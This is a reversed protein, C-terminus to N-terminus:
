RLIPPPPTPPPPPPPPPTPAPPPEDSVIRQTWQAMHNSTKLDQFPLFFGPRSGDEGNLVRGPAVAFMWLLAQTDPDGVVSDNPFFKRLGARRQSSVTFWGLAKGGHQTVFPTPKPFTDMLGHAGDGDGLDDQPTPYLDDAVGPRAARALLVPIAGAEPAVAWTKAGPDSYGNCFRNGGGEECADVHDGSYDAQDVESYLLLSGDALFTPNFRNKGAEAAVVTVPEDGLWADGDRQILSIGGGIFSITQDNTGGIATVAISDGRPSWDPHSPVFPLEVQDIREGTNGDHFFLLQDSLPDNKPAVAVLQEGLPDFSGTLVRNQADDVSLERDLEFGNYTFFDADDAARALDNVYMLWGDQSNGLSFFMKDGQRSLAHCGVCEQPGDEGAIDAPAVFTEPTADAAGFDFRVISEPQTASWYYVGGDIRESAFELNFTASQGLGGNEDSGLVTLAVLGQGRNSAAIGELLDGDLAVMCAGEVFEEPDSYCRTTYRLDMSNSAFRLQFLENEPAGRQFHVELRGLNPPLLVGDNPYVLVPAFAPDPAGIFHEGAAAPLAPDAGPSDPAARLEGAIRVTVAALATSLSGDSNAAQARVTAIGGRPVSDNPDAPLQLTGAGDEPFSAVLYNDPVYFVTRETLEVEVDPDTTFRGFARYEIQTSEGPALYVLAAEPEVRFAILNQEGSDAGGSGSGGNTFVYGGGAGVSDGAAGGGSSGGSDSGGQAPGSASPGGSGCGFGLCLALTGAGLRGLMM